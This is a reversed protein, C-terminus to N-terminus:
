SSSSIASTRRSTSRPNKEAGSGYVHVNNKGQKKAYYLAQDALEVLQSKDHIDIRYSAVGASFSLCGSPFIEVGDFYTDNM